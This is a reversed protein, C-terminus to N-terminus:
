GIKTGAIAGLASGIFAAVVLPLVSKPKESISAFAMPIVEKKDDGSNTDTPNDGMEM